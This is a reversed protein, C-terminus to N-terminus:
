AVAGDERLRAIAADDLGLWDRLVADSHQGLTPPARPPVVPTDSLRLPSAVM